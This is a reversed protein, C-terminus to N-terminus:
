NKNVLVDPNRLHPLDTDNKVTIEAKALDETEYKLIKGDYNETVTATIWVRSPDKV